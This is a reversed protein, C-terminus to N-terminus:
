GEELPEGHLVDGETVLLLLAASRGSGQTEAGQWGERHQWERLIEWLGRCPPLHELFLGPPRLGSCPPRLGTMPRM